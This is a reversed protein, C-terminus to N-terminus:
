SIREQHIKGALSKFAFARERLSPEESTLLHILEEINKQIPLNSKAQLKKLTVGASFLDTCICPKLNGALLEPAMYGETGQIHNEWDFLVLCGKSTLGINSPKLDGHVINWDKCRQLISVLDSCIKGHENSSLKLNWSLPTVKEMVLAVLKDTLDVFVFPFLFGLEVLHAHDDSGSSRIVKQLLNKVFLGQETSVIKIVVDQGTSTLRASFLKEVYPPEVVGDDTILGEFLSTLNSFLQSQLLKEHNPKDSANRPPTKEEDSKTTLSKSLKSSLSAAGDIDKNVQEVQGKFNPNVKVTSWNETLKWANLTILCNLTFIMRLVDDSLESIRFKAYSGVSVFGKEAHNTRVVYLTLMQNQLTWGYFRVNRWNEDQFHNIHLLYFLNASFALELVIKHSDDLNKTKKHEASLFLPSLSRTKWFLVSDPRINWHYSGAVSKFL